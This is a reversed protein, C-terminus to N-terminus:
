EKNGLEVEIIVQDKQATISVSGKTAGKTIEWTQVTDSDFSSTVLWGSASLGNKYFPVVKDLGDPTTFTVLLGTSSIVKAEPYIPFDKPFTDPLKEEKVNIPQVIKANTLDTKLGDKKAFFNIALSIVLFIVIGGIVFIVVPKMKFFKTM